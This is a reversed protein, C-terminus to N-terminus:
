TRLGHGRDRFIVHSVGVIAIDIVLGYWPKGDHPLGQTGFLRSLVMLGLMSYWGAFAALIRVLSMVVTCGVLKRRSVLRLIRALGAVAVSTGVVLVSVLAVDYGIHFAADPVEPWGTWYDWSSHVAIRWLAMIGLYDLFAFLLLTILISPYPGLRRM